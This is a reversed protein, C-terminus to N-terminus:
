TVSVNGQFGQVIAESGRFFAYYACLALILTGVCLLRAALRTLRRDPLLALERLFLTGVGAAAFFAGLCFAYLAPVFSENSLETTESSSIVTVLALMALGAIGNLITIYRLAVLALHLVRQRVTERPEYPTNQM